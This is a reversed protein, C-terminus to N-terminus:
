AEGDELLETEDVEMADDDSHPAAIPARPPLPARGSRAGAPPPPPAAGARSALPPPPPGPRVSPAPPPGQRTGSAAPRAGRLPKPPPQPRSSDPAATDPEDHELASMTGVERDPSAAAAGVASAGRSREAAEPPSAATPASPLREAQAEAEAPEVAPEVAPEAPEVAPEAPKAAEAEAPAPPAAGPSRAKAAKRQAPSERVAPRKARASASVTDKTEEAAAPEKVGRAAAGDGPAAPAPGPRSEADGRLMNKKARELGETAEPDGAAMRLVRRWADAAERADRLTEEWLRAIKRALELRSGQDKGRLIQDEYLQVIGRYDELERYLDSLQEMVAADSPSLDHLRKLDQAAGRKDDLKELRLQARRALLKRVLPGDFVEDLARNLVAEVREPEKVQQAMQELADLASDNVHAVVSDGLLQFARDIDGLDNFTLEAARRLLGGRTRGGDRAGQGGAALAAVLTNTLRDDGTTRDAERAAEELLQLTDDQIAGGLAIDLFARARDVAKYESAVQAARALARLREAPNKCRTVQREYLDVIGAPEAAINALRQILPEVESPSISTLAQEGHIVAEQTPVGCAAQVEAQRVMEEARAPGSMEQVIVDHAVALSELDKLEAAIRELQAAVEADAARTRILEKAVFAADASRGVELFRDFAGRLAEQRKESVRAELYWEVLKTAVIGKWGLDDGLRVYDARCDEDGRDAVQLLAALAEDGKDVKTHLIEALRRTMRSVEEDDGEVEILAALHKALRPWDEVRAALDALRQLADFDEPDLARVIDFNRIAAVPDDLKADYLDALREAIELKQEADTIVQLQRELAKAMGAPDELRDYLEAMAGLAEAHSPDLKALITEYREIAGQPDDLGDAMLRAERMRVEIQDAPDAIADGLRRLYQVADAFESRQEADAALVQLTEIDDVDDLVRLLSLRAAEPDGLTDRQLSAARKRLAVRQPLDKLREARRLLFAALDESRSAKTYHEELVAAYTDNPPDLDAAQELRLIASSEDGLRLLYDAETACLAAQEKPGGALQARENAASAAQAWVEGSVYCREAAQWLEASTELAAGEAFADGAAVFDGAGERLEGLRRYLASRADADSISAVHEAIVQAALDFREAKEFSRVAATVAEDDDPTLAAIRAWTQGTAVPDRRKQEHIKAIAKEMSIRAEVDSEQGAQQELVIVLDDWRGARELLRRLQGQSAEDTPDLAVLDQLSRVATDIDRLQTECLGALERLWRRRAEPDATEIQSARFLLDRLETFKRRGRLHGELFSIAEDNGPDLQLVQEYKAAAEPKRAKRALGSAQDLLARVRVDEPADAPPALAEFLADDGVGAQVAENVVRRADEAVVGGPNAKLYAAAQQSVETQRGLQEAYYLALQVARDNAPEIEAACVSYSLGHEGPYEEALEIFLQAAEVREDEGVPQGSQVRELVLSALLQKLGPDQGGETARARRIADAAGALDGANRRVEAEDQYLAIRREDDEVLKLELDFYAVAEAWHGAGKLLERTAYIAYQNTPDYEVARRYNEMAKRPQAMSQDSWWRGLEEHISAAQVRAEPDQEALPAIAKARRELMAVLAKIDNKERYLEALREAPAAQTPDRDIAMMLARAARHADALSMSWVNAAETLWHAAYAPDATATGVKELFTAYARPDQQGVDYAANIADEDHPNNVLRQVLSQMQRADM